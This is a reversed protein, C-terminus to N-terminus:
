HNQQDNEKKEFYFRHEGHSLAMKNFCVHPLNIWDVKEGFYEALM